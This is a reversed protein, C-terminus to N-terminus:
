SVARRRRRVIVVAACAILWLAGDSDDQAACGACGGGVTFNYTCTRVDCLSGTECDEQAAGNVIGDGCAPPQCNASNCIATDEGGDDCVEGAAANLYGDGCSALLCTSGNCTTSDIGISECEEGALANLVGDGCAPSTCNVSNCMATDVRSSDCSEGADVVGNGCSAGGGCPLSNTGYHRDLKITQTEGPALALRYELAISADGDFGTTDEGAINYGVRAVHNRWTVPMGRVATSWSNFVYQEPGNAGIGVYPPGSPDPLDGAKMAVYYTNAITGGGDRLAIGQEPLNPQHQYVYCRGPGAGVVDNSFSSDNNFYLDGDAFAFLVLDVAVAGNNTIAYTQQILSRPVPVAILEQRLAFDLQLQSATDAIRFASTAVTPGGSNPVIVTRTLNAHNGIIGDTNPGPEAYTWFKQHQTLVVASAVDGPTTVFLYVGGMFVTSIARTEGLVWYNDDTMMSTQRGYFGYDDVDADLHGVDNLGNTM